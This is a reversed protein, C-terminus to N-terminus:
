RGKTDIVEHAAKLLKSSLVLGSDTATDRNIRLRVKNQDYFFRIMGGRFAFDTHEGVTLIPKGKLQKLIDELDRTESQSIFLIHCRYAEEVRRYRRVVLKRKGVAENQVIDDLIRGFPDSGLIGIVIPSDPADFASQPWEVFQAFNYLFVAKLDYDRAIQGSTQPALICLILLILRIWGTRAAIAASGSRRRIPQSLLEM